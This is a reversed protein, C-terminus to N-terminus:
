VKMQPHGALVLGKGVHVFDGHRFEPLVLRRPLGSGKPRCGQSNAAPVPLFILPNLILPPKMMIKSAKLSVPLTAITV